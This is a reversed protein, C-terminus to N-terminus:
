SIVRSREELWAVLSEREYAVANGLMIRKIGLTQQQSDMNAFSKPSYGTYEKFKPHKRSLYPPLLNRLESFDPHEYVEESNRNM